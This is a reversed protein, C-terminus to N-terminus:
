KNTGYIMKGQEKGKHIKRVNSREMVDEGVEGIKM